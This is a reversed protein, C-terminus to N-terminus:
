LPLFPNSRGLDGPIPPSIPNEFMGLRSVVSEVDLGSGLIEKVGEVTQQEPPPAIIREIGPTSSLFLYYVVGGVFVLAFIGISLALWNISRTKREVAIAM